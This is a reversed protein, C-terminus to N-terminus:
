LKKKELRFVFKRMDELKDKIYGRIIKIGRM